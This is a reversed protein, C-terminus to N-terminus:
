TEKRRILYRPHNCRVLRHGTLRCWAPIDEPAAPDLAVVELMSQSTMKQLRIRLALVLDGCSMQGADWIEVAEVANATPEEINFQPDVGAQATPTSWLCSPRESFPLNELTCARGWAHRFCDRALLNERLQERFEDIPRNMGQALCGLCRPADKLGLGVSFLIEHGCIRAACSACLSAAHRTLDGLLGEARTKTAEDLDELM